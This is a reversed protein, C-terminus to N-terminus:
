CACCVFWLAAAQHHACLRVLVLVNSIGRCACCVFWLAAARHHTCRRVQVLVNRVLIGGLLTGQWGNDFMGLCYEGRGVMFLYRQPTLKFSAGGPLLVTHDAAACCAAHTVHALSGM